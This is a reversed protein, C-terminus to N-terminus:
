EAWFDYVVPPAAFYNKCEERIKLHHPDTQYKALNEESLFTVQLAVRYDNVLRPDGTEAPTGVWVEEVSEVTELSELKAMLDAMQAETLDTKTKFFVNHILLKESAESKLSALEKKALELESTLAEFEQKKICNCEGGCSALVSSIIFTLLLNKM